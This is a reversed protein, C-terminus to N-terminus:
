DRGEAWRRLRDRYEVPLGNGTAGDLIGQLHEPDPQQPIALNAIYILAQVPDPTLVTLPDRRYATPYGEWEDLAALHSPDIDWLVGWVDSIPDPVVTAVGGTFGAADNVFAVRHKPLRAIGLAPAGPCRSAMQQLNMNSGYAFYRM